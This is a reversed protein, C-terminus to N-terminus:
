NKNYTSRQLTSKFPPIYKYTSVYLKFNLLIIVICILKAQKTCNLWNNIDQSWDQSRKQTSLETNKNIQKQM